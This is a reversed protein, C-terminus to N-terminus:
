PPRGISFDRPRSGLEHAALRLRFRVGHKEVNGSGCRCAFGGVVRGAARKHLGGGRRPRPTTILTHQPQALGSRREPRATTGTSYTSLVRGRQRAVLIADSPGVELLVADADTALDKSKLEAVGPAANHSDPMIVPSRGLRIAFLSEGRSRPDNPPAASKSVGRGVRVEGGRARGVGKQVKEASNRLSRSATLARQGGAPSAMGMGCGAQAM